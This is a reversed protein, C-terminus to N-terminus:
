GSLWKLLQSVALFFYKKSSIGGSCVQNCFSSHARCSPSIEPRATLESRGCAVALGSHWCTLSVTYQSGWLPSAVVYSTDTTNRIDVTRRRDEENHTLNLLYHHGNLTFNPNGPIAVHPPRWRVTIYGPAEARASLASEAM